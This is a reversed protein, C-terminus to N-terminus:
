SVVAIQPGDCSSIWVWVFKFSVFQLPVKSLIYMFKANLVIANNHASSGGKQHSASFESVAAVVM